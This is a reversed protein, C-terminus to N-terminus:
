CPCDGTLIGGFNVNKIPNGLKSKEPQKELSDFYGYGAYLNVQMAIM